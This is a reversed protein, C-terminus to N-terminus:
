VGERNIVKVYVERMVGARNSAINMGESFGQRRSVANGSRTWRWRFLRSTIGSRLPKNRPCRSLASFPMEEMCTDCQCDVTTRIGLSQLTDFAQHMRGEHYNRIRSDKEAILFEDKYFEFLMELRSIASEIRAASPTNM